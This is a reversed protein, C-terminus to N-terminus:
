EICRYLHYQSASETGFSQQWVYSLLFRPDDIFRSIPSGVGVGVWDPRQDLILELYKAERNYPVAVPSILGDRDLIRCHSYYGIHGIDEAAVVEESVDVHQSLYYAIPKLVQESYTQAERYHSFQRYLGVSLVAGIGVAIVMTVVALHKNFKLFRGSVWGIAAAAFLIYIPYIPAVYWFFLRTRSFTFLVIMAALWLAELTGFAQKRNLWYGGLIALPTMLWGVPNHWGMLYVLNQWWSVTGFQSYLALKAPISHPLVSGFYFQAFGLWPVLLAASTVLYSKWRARDHYVCSAFVLILLLGGEPRTLAALTALGIAYYNQRRYRYFLSATVLLTFMATEMGSVDAPVSRPWLVYILVPLWALQGFRLSNAFRYLVVATLGSFLLSIFLAATVVPVRVAAFVALLWTFFPTSTGLVHEGVNYVFGYGSALNEAYRFTIFADDAVFGTWLHFGLRMAIAAVFAITLKIRLSM